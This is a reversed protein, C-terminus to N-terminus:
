PNRDNKKKGPPQSSKSRATGPTDDTPPNRDNKGPPQGSKDPEAGVSAARGEARLLSSGQRGQPRLHVRFTEKTARAALTGDFHIFHLSPRAREALARPKPEAVQSADRRPLPRPRDAATARPTHTRRCSRARSGGAGGSATAGAGLAASEARRPAGDCSEPRLGVPGRAAHPEPPSSSDALGEEGSGWRM